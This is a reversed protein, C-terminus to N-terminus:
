KFFIMYMILLFVIICFIYNSDVFNSAQQNEISGDLRRNNIKILRALNGFREIQREELSRILNKFIEIERSQIIINNFEESQREGLLKNITYLAKIKREKVFQDLDIYLDGVDTLIVNYNSTRARRKTGSTYLNKSPVVLIGITSGEYRSM